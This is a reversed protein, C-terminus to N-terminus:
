HTTILRTFLALLHSRMPKIHLTHAHMHKYQRPTNMSKEHMGIHRAHSLQTHVFHFFFHSFSCEASVAAGGRPHHSKIKKKRNKYLQKCHGKHVARVQCPSLCQTGREGNCVFLILLFFVCLNAPKTQWHRKGRSNQYVSRHSTRLRTMDSAQAHLLCGKTDPATPKGALRWTAGACCAHTSGQTKEIFGTGIKRTRTGGSSSSGGGDRPARKARDRADKYLIYIYVLVSLAASRHIISCYFFKRESEWSSKNKDSAHRSPLSSRIPAEAVCM